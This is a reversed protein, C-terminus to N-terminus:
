QTLSLKADDRTRLYVPYKPNGLATLGYYKFSIVTGIKPPAKRDEYDFGSGITIMQGDFDCKVAGMVSSFKGRGKLIEKVKCEADIFPKYKFAYKTRGSYYEVFPNRIVIGEAGDKIRADFYVKVDEKKLIKHQRILRIKTATHRTLYRQLVELREFLNGDQAPLEFVMFKLADWRDKSNKTNVISVINEFDGRKSWIEGDLAFSPFDKTFSPPPTFLKGSRSILKQGDWFARVGDYKESMVWGTTNFDDKYTKLLFLQPSQAYLAFCFSMGMLVIKM